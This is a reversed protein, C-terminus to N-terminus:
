VTLDNEAKIDVAAQLLKQLVAAFIAIIFSAFVIVLAVAIVGPADDKDAVYFIYPTGAAYLGSIILACYKIAKLTRVSAVTFVQNHEIYRLLQTAQYLAYFFPIAPVYMGLLIPRYLATKDSIMAAPLAFVCLALVTIGLLLVVGRLFVTSTQELVVEKRKNNTM